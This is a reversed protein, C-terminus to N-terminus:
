FGKYPNPGYGEVEEIFDDIIQPIKDYEDISIQKQQVREAEVQLRELTEGINDMRKNCLESGKIFHCQYDDGYKCGLLLVGDMGKSMAEAIWQTNVSGLCRIPIFRVYSSWKKKRMAAMDLAPYADNECVLVLMRYGGEEEDEPVQVSAIMENLMSVSYTDFSIVREPCAGMCTGCRRCRTTNPEPTGKEDDDLAGFPCEETCRKCQTCRVMNFKPYTPDGARPHVAVGRNISELCQISKLAAGAADDKATGMSMPQRVCGAAYIGTRRTEYPFCIYNSDAFGDFLDLDPIQEGQRYGLKLVPEDSITPVMGTALVLLDVEVEFDEGLLTDTVKVIVKGDEGETIEQIESKTLFIGPDDQAARYYNEFVGPTRMDKYFIYAKADDGQERVYGAQKLSGMCCVSSCYSLHEADRQGACQIFAATQVPQGDSPRVMKQDKAMTELEINTVVNKIKGYGLSDLKSADYPKWGTALVLSGIKLEQDEGNNKVTVRFKGPAGKILELQTKTMVKIKDNGEVQSILEAITPPEADHYPHKTPTQKYMKAAFGGLQDEKEVLVVDYGTNAANLAATLGTFGGGLVMITKTLDMPEAEPKNTRELKAVSMRIYDRVMMSLPDALEEEEPEPLDPANYSWVALERINARDVVVDPGFEFVDWMVRPSCAAVCVRNIGEGEVDKQIESLGEKGCLFPVQKLVAPSSEEDVYETVKEMNVNEGIECGTCIYVGVKTDAM